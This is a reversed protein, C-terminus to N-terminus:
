LLGATRLADRYTQAYQLYHTARDEIMKIEHTKLPRVQKAPMGLALQGEPIVCKETVLASAGILCHRSIKSGDLLVAAMGILSYEEVEAGHIVARHGVTVGKGLKVPVGHSTHCVSGDQLNSHEGIEIWDVDGRLICGGWVSARPGIRVKGSVEASPHVFATPDIQPQHTGIKFIM